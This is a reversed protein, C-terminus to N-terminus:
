VTSENHRSELFSPPLPARITPAHYHWLQGIFTPLSWCRSTLRWHKLAATVSHLTVPPCVCPVFTLIDCVLTKRVLPCCTCSFIFMPHVLTQRFYQEKAFVNTEVHFFKSSWDNSWGEYPYINLYNQFIYKILRCNSLKQQTQTRHCFTPVYRWPPGHSSGLPVISPRCYTEVVWIQIRM